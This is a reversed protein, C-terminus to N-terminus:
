VDGWKTNQLAGWTTSRVEGWSRTSGDFRIGTSVNAFVDAIQAPTPTLLGSSVADVFAAIEPAATLINEFEDVCEIIGDWEIIGAGGANTYALAKIAGIAITMTPETTDPQVPDVSLDQEGAVILQWGNELTQIRAAQTRTASNVDAYCRAQVIIRQRSGKPCNDLYMFSAFHTGAEYYGTYTADELEILGNYLKFEVYGDVDISFPVTCLIIPRCDQEFVYSLTIINKRSQQIEYDSANTYNIIVLNKASIQSEFSAALKQTQDKINQMLPNAGYCNVTEKKRYEFKYYMVYANASYGSNNVEKCEILDGLDYAPNSAIYLTAPTYEIEKLTDLMANVTAYKGDQTGGVIPIDGCDLVLGDINDDVASYPAYNQEAVFRATIGAYRTNYDSFNCNNLRTARDNSDCAATAYQVFKLKGNRDITANACIVTSLCALADRYTSLWEQQITYTQSTANTHLNEIEEQTQALEVGCEGAMYSVLEYWTGNNDIEIPADFKSMADIATLKIKGGIREPTDVFFVGLPLSELTGGDDLEIAFHLEIKAGFLSYRDIDSNITLGCEGAYVAGFCLQNGNVCQNTIYLSDKIINNDNLPYETGDNATLTGYVYIKRNPNKIADKFNNSVAYM